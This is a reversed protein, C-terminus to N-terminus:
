GSNRAVALKGTAAECTYVKGSRGICYARGLSWLAPGIFEDGQDLPAPPEKSDEISGDALDLTQTLTSEVQTKGNSVRGGFILIKEPGKGTEGLYVTGCFAASCKASLREIFLNTGNFNIRECDFMAPDHTRGGIVYISDHVVCASACERRQSLRTEKYLTWSKPTGASFDLTEITDLVGSQENWGGIAVLMAHTKVYAMCHNKRGQSLPAIELLKKTKHSLCWSENIATLLDRTGGTIYLLMGDSETDVQCCGFEYPVTLTDKGDSRLLVINEGKDQGERYVQVASSMVAPILVPTTEPSKQPAAPDPRFENVVTTEIDQLTPIRQPSYNYQSLSECKERVISWEENDLATNLNGLNDTLYGTKGEADEQASEAESRAKEVLECLRALPKLLVRGLDPFVALLPQLASECKPGVGDLQSKTDGLKGLIKAYEEGKENPINDQLRQHLSKAYDKIPQHHKEDCSKDHDKMCTECFFEKTKSCFQLNISHDKPCSM